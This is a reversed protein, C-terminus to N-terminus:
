RSKILDTLLSDLEKKWQDRVKIIEAPTVDPYTQRSVAVVSVMKRFYRFAGGVYVLEMM